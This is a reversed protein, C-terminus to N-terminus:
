CGRGDSTLMAQQGLPYPTPRRLRLNWARTRPLEYTTSIFKPHRTLASLRHSPCLHSPNNDRRSKNLSEGKSRTLSSLQPIQAWAARALPVQTWGRLGSPCVTKAFPATLSDCSMSPLRCVSLSPSKCGQARPPMRPGFSARTRSQM